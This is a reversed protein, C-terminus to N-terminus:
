SFKAFNFKSASANYVYPPGAHTLTVTDGVTITENIPILIQLITSDPTSSQGLQQQLLTLMIDNFSVIDSGLCQVQYELQFKTRALCNIQKIILTKNSIGFKASNLIIQQGIFLQNALSSISSFKVNYVPDGFMDIDAQAREQAEPISLITTDVISDQLEGYTAISTTDQVHALIPIQAQGQVIIQNGSGPDSTFNIFRGQDNYLVQVTGPDTQQDTGIAQGVGALTITMTSESYPYALPYVFTGAVSTYVDVPSYQPPVAM